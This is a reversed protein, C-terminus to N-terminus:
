PETIKEIFKLSTRQQFRWGELKVQDNENLGRFVSHTWHNPQAVAAFVFHGQEFFLKICGKSQMKHVIKWEGLLKQAEKDHKLLCTNSTLPLECVQCAIFNRKMMSEVHFQELGARSMAYGTFIVKDGVELEPIIRAVDEAGVRLTYCDVHYGCEVGIVLKRYNPREALYLVQGLYIM